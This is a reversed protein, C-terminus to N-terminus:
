DNFHETLIICGHTIQQVDLGSSTRQKSCLLVAVPSLHSKCTVPAKDSATQDSRASSASSPSQGEDERTIFGCTVFRSLILFLRPYFACFCSLRVQTKQLSRRSDSLSIIWPQVSPLQTSVAEEVTITFMSNFSLLEVKERCPWSCKLATTPKVQSLGLTSSYSSHIPNRWSGTTGRPAHVGSGSSISSTRSRKM